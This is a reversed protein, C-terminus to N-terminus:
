KKQETVLQKWQGQEKRQEFRYSKGAIRVDELVFEEQVFPSFTITDDTVGIGAWYKMFLDIWTSHFYDCTGSFTVGDTPRYHELVMPTSRDGHLFQVEVYGDFLELWNKRLSEDITAAAGLADLVNSAAYPWIPGNWACVYPHPELMSCKTPGAICNDFWYMPCNKDVTLVSFESAIADKEFLLDFGKHYEKGLMNWLFPYFSDYCVGEDCQKGTKMDISVFCGRKESWFHQKLAELSRVVLAEMKKQDEKKGLKEAMKGCAIVNGVSYCIQDLRYLKRQEKSWGKRVGEVDETWDWPEETHQYFAPQYEAGTNWSGEVVPLFEYGTKEPMFEKLAFEKCSDYVKKLFEENPHHCYLNWIAMPTSEIYYKWYYDLKRNWNEVDSFVAKPEKMWKGEEYHLAVPLGVPCDYGAGYPSEYICEGQVEHNGLVDEPKHIGRFLLFWRYYYMKLMDPNECRFSPVNREFFENVAAEKEEFHTERKLAEEALAEAKEKEKDFSLVYSFTVSSQAPVSLVFDTTESVSNKQVFTGDLSMTNEFRTITDSVHFDQLSSTLSVRIKTEERKDSSLTVRAYFVDKVTFCKTECFSICGTKKYYTPDPECRYYTKSWAPTWQHRVAGFHLKQEGEYFHPMILDSLGSHHGIYLAGTLGPSPEKWAQGWPQNYDTRSGLYGEASYINKGIVCTRKSNTLFRNINM